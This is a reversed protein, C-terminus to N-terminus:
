FIKEEQKEPPRNYPLFEFEETAVVYRQKKEGRSEWREQRLEGNIVVYSGKKLLRHAVEAKKGWMVINVFNTTDKYGTSAISFEFKQTSGVDKVSDDLNCVRGSIVVTNVDRAM